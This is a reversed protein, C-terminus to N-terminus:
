EKPGPSDRTGQTRETTQRTSRVSERRKAERRCDSCITRLGLEKLVVWRTRPVKSRVRWVILVGEGITQNSADDCTLKEARNRRERKESVGESKGM